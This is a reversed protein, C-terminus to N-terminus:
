STLEATKELTFPPFPELRWKRGSRDVLEVSIADSDRINRPLEIYWGYPSRLLRPRVPPRPRFTEDQIEMVCRSVDLPPPIQEGPFILTVTITRQPRLRDPAFIVIGFVMLLVLVFVGMAMTVPLRDTITAAALLLSDVILLILVILNIPQTVAEIISVRGQTTTAAETDM